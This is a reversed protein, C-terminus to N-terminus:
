VNRYPITSVRTMLSIPQSPKPVRFLASCSPFRLTPAEYPPTVQSSQRVKLVVFLKGFHKRTPTPCILRQRETQLIYTISLCVPSHAAEYYRQVHLPDGRWTKCGLVKRQIQQVEESKLM